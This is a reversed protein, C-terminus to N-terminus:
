CLTGDVTSNENISTSNTSITNVINDPVGMEVAGFPVLPAEKEDFLSKKDVVSTPDSKTYSRAFHSLARIATEIRPKKISLQLVEHRKLTALHGIQVIGKAELSKRAALAGTATSFSLLRGVIRGISEECDALLPFIPGDNDVSTSEVEIKVL